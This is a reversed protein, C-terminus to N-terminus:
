LFRRFIFKHFFALSIETEPQSNRTRIMVNALLIEEKVVGFVAVQNNSPDAIYHKYTIGKATEFLGQGLTIPYGNETVKLNGAVPLGSPDNTVLLALYRDMMAVPQKEM